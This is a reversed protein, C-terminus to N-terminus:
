KKLSIQEYNNEDTSYFINDLNIETCVRLCNPCPRSLLVQDENGIRINLMDYKNLNEEGHRIISSIESHICPKYESEYGKHNIYKGFRKENHPRNYDNYGVCIMRNKRYIISVHFSKGTKKTPKIAKAMEVAREFTKKNV